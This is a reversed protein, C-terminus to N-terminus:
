LSANAPLSLRSREAAPVRGPGVTDIAGRHRYSNIAVPRNATNSRPATEGTQAQVAAALLDSLSYAAVLRTFVAPIAM